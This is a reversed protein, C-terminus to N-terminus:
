IKYMFNVIFCPLFWLFFAGFGCFDAMKVNKLGFLLACFGNKEGYCGTNEAFFM